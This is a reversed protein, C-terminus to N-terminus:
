KRHSLEMQSTLLRNEAAMKRKFRKQFVEENKHIRGIINRINFSSPSPIVKYIGADIAHVYRAKEEEPVSLADSKSGRLVEAINLSFIMDPTITYPADILVDSVYKCGLVSLVREHLNMLPLNGGRMRNVLADGHIGVLM